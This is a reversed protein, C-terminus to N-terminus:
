TYLKSAHLVYDCYSFYGCCLESHENTRLSHVINSYSLPLWVLGVRLILRM